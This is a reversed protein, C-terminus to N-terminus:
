LVYGSGAKDIILNSFTAVGNSFNATLTSTPDFSGPGSAISLTVTNTDGTVPDNGADQVTVTVAGLPAGATGDAVTSIALHNPPNPAFAARGSIGAQGNARTRPNTTSADGWQAFHYGANPVATVATGSAGFNVTQPSTGSITGNAGATYTLTYTN